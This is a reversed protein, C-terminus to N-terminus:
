CGHSGGVFGTVETAIRRSWPREMVNRGARCTGHRKGYKWQVGIGDRCVRLIKMGKTPGRGREWM